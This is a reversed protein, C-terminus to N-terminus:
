SEPGTEKCLVSICAKLCFSTRQNNEIDLGSEIITILLLYTLHM